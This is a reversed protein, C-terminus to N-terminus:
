DVLLKTLRDLVSQQGAAYDKRSIEKLGAAYGETFGRNFGSIEAARVMNGSIAADICREVVHETDKAHAETVDRTVRIIPKKTSVTKYHPVGDEIHDREVTGDKVLMSIYRGALQVTIGLANSVERASACVRGNIYERVSLKLQESM